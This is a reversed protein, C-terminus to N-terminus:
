RWGVAAFAALVATALALSPVVKGWGPATRYMTPRGPRGWGRLELAMATLPISRLACVLASVLTPGIEAIRRRRGGASRRLSHSDSILAFTRELSPLFRLVLSVTLAARFGLGLSVFADVLDNPSTTGMLLAFGFTLAAFRSGLLVLAEVGERTLLVRGGVTALPTGGRGYLPLMLAMVVLVPLITLLTRWSRGPGIEAVSLSALALALLALAATRLPLFAVVVVELLVLLKLRADARGLLTGRRGEVAPGRM